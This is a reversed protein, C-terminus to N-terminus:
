DKREKLAQLAAQASLAQEPHWGDESAMKNLHELVTKQSEPDLSAFRKCIRRNDRSLLDDWAQELFTNQFDM